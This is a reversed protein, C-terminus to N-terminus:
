SGCGGNQYFVVRQAAQVDLPQQPNAIKCGMTQEITEVFKPSKIM